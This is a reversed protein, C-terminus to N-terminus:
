QLIILAGQMAAPHGSIKNFVEVIKSSYVNGTQKSNGTMLTQMYAPKM